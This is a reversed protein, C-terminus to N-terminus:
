LKAGKKAFLKQIREIMERKESKSFFIAVSLSLFIVGVVGGKFAFQFWGHVEILGGNMELLKGAFGAFALPLIWSLHLRLLSTNFHRRLLFSLWFTTVFIYTILTGTIPGIAGFYKTLLVSLIINTGAQVWMAKSIKDVLQSFNFCWGWLALIPLFFANLCAILTFLRGAYEGEGTWLSIFAHNFIYICLLFASGFVSTIKTLEILRKNFLPMDNSHYIAGLTSWTSNGINLLQTQVLQPLKQTVFFPVVFKPGLFLAIILNDCMLCVRGSLENFFYAVRLKNSSLDKHFEESATEVNINAFYKLLKFNIYSAIVTAVVQGTLSSHFYAIAVASLTFILSNLMQLWNVIYNKHNAELYAKYPLMPLVIFFAQCLVLSIILDGRNDSLAFRHYFWISFFISVIFSTLAVKKYSKVGWKVISFAKGNKTHVEKVLFGLLTSYLGFELISFHGFFDILTKYLGFNSDGIHRILYPTTFLGLLMTIINKIGSSGLNIIPTRARNLKM